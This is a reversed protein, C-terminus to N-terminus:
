SSTERVEDAGDSGPGDDEGADRRKTIEFLYAAPVAFLCANFFPVLPPTPRIWRSVVFGVTITGLLAVTVQGVRHQLPTQPFSRAAFVTGYFGVINSCAAVNWAGPSALPKLAVVGRSALFDSCAVVGIGLFGVLAVALWARGPGRAALCAVGISVLIPVDGAVLARYLPSPALGYHASVAMEFAFVLAAARLAWRLTEDRTPRM